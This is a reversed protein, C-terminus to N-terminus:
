RSQTSQQLEATSLWWGEGVCWATADPLSGRHLSKILRTPRRALANELALSAVANRAGQCPIFEVRLLATAAYTPAGQRHVLLMCGHGSDTTLPFVLKGGICLADLWLPLPHTAGANVYILDALPLQGECASRNHVCVQALHALNHQARAALDPELEYADVSGQPGVLAALIATYYGTGAGIHLVKQGTAPACAALCVAHLSPQGNNIGREPALAVLVDQYLRRPDASLKTIDGHGGYIQWPGPGVFNERKVSAFVTRLRECFVGEGPVILRAYADRQAQLPTSAAPM